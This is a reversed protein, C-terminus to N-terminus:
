CDSLDWYFDRIEAPLKFLNMIQTVRAGTLEEKKAIESMSSVAEDDLM